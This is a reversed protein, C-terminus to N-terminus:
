CPKLVRRLDSSKHWSTHGPSWEIRTNPMDLEEDAPGIHVMHVIKGIMGEFRKIGLSRAIVIKDGIKLPNAM